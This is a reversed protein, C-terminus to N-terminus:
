KQKAVHNTDVGKEPLHDLLHLLAAYFEPKNPRDEDVKSWHERCEKILVEWFVPWDESSFNKDMQRDLLYGVLWGVSKQLELFREVEQLVEADEELYGRIDEADKQMIKRDM